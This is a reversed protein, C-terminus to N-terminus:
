QQFNIVICVTKFHKIFIPIYSRKYSCVSAEDLGLLIAASLYAQLVPRRLKVPYIM